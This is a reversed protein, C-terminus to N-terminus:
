AARTAAGSAARNRWLWLIMTVAVWCHALIALWIGFTIFGHFARGLATEAPPEAMWYRCPFGFFFVFWTNLTLRKVAEKRSKPPEVRQFPKM